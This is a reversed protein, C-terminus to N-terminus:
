ETFKASIFGILIYAATKLNSWLIVLISVPNQRIFSKASCILLTTKTVALLKYGLRVNELLVPSKGLPLSGAKGVFM